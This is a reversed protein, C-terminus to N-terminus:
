GVMERPPKRHEMVDFPISEKPIGHGCYLIQDPSASFSAAPERLNLMTERLANRSGHPEDSKSM